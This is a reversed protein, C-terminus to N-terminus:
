PPSVHARGDRDGQRVVPMGAILTEVSHERLLYALHERTLANLPVFSQLMYRDILKYAHM